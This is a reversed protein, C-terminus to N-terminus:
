LEWGDLLAQLEDKTRARRVSLYIGKANECRSRRTVSRAKVVEKNTRYKDTSGVVNKETDAWQNSCEPEQARRMKLLSISADSTKRGVVSRTKIKQARSWLATM